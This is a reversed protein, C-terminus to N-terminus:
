AAADNEGFLAEVFTEASFELLDDAKEGVGVYRVPLNMDRVIRLVSGGRATGDMKTLVLGTVGLAEHFKRAQSLTNQGSGADLVLLVEHPAGEVERGAVRALKKLEDMLPARTHLRGATDALVADAGLRRAEAIADYLVAAPSAGEPHRVVPCGAREAWIELQEEAAARFTDAAAMVVKKGERAFRCALKGATTTKGTGNVGTVLIVRPPGGPREIKPLSAFLDLFMARMQAHLADAASEAAMGRALRARLAKMMAQSAEVGFDAALLTEEMSALREEPVSGSAGPLPRLSRRMKELGGRFRELLSM